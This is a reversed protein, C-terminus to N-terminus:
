FIFRTVMNPSIAAIGSHLIRGYFVDKIISVRGYSIVFLLSSIVIGAGVAALFGIRDIIILMVWILTYDM